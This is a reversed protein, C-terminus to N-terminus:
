IFGPRPEKIYKEIRRCIKLEKTRPFYRKNLDRLFGGSGKEFLTISKILIKLLDYKCLNLFEFICGRQCIKAYFIHGNNL